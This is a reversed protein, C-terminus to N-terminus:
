FEMAWRVHIRWQGAKTGCQSNVTLGCGETEGDLLADALDLQLSMGRPGTLRLGTGLSALWNGSAMDVDTALKRAYAGDVFALGNMRWDGGWSGVKFGPSTLELSGRVGVDGSAEGELYGRVTDAGGASFRESPLLTGSALQAEGRAVLDWKGFHEWWSLGGRLATFNASAGYQKAQFQTESNGLLGRLGLVATLDLRARPGQEGLWTAQYNASLPAYQVLPLPDNTGAMVGISQERKIDLAVGAVQVLSDDRGLPTSYRLGVRDSNGRIGDYFTSTPTLGRSSLAYMSVTDGGSSVPLMYTLMLSKSDSWREPSTQVNVGISHGRQWLNDYRVAANLRTATVDKTERRTLEVSGHLPLQDDVDLQV